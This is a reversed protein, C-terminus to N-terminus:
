NKNENCRGQANRRNREVMENYKETDRDIQSKMFYFASRVGDSMEEPITGYQAYNVITVCLEGINMFNDFSELMTDIWNFYFHMSKREAALNNNQNQTMFFDKRNQLITSFLLCIGEGNMANIGIQYVIM